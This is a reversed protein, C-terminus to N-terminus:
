PSVLCIKTIDSPEQWHSWHLPSYYRLNQFFEKMINCINKSKFHQTNTHDKLSSIITPATRGRALRALLRGPKNGSTFLRHKAFFVASEAKQTLLHDLASRAAELKKFATTSFSMKIERDLNKIQQELDLQKSLVIKKRAATYSIISGRMFAKGAEWLISASTDSTDNKSIYLKWEAELYSIFAPNSLLLSNLHWQRAQPDYYPPMLEVTVSSHDSLPCTNISCSKTRDIIPRSVFIYDIRSFSHHPHSFFTFDKGQPNIVRWADLLGLATCLDTTAHSIKSPPSKKAPKHDLNPTLGCNFDGGLIIHGPCVASVEALLKSYFSSEYSNPAYVSGIMIQEGYLFGTILVFRGEKDQVIKDITFPLHKHILIAVGRSKSTYSAFFIQGVWDRRLKLHEPDTLHTEQLLAVQVKDKKLMSLLKRRKVVHNIGKVNLTLIKIDSM